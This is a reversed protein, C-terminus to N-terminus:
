TWGKELLMKNLYCFLEVWNLTRLVLKHAYSLLRFLIFCFYLLGKKGYRAKTLYKITVLILWFPFFSFLFLIFNGKAEIAAHNCKMIALVAQAVTSFEVLGSSSRESKLPFMRIASPECDEDKFTKLLKEETLDPPTNFFHLIQIQM